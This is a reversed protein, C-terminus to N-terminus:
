NNEKCVSCHCIYKKIFVERLSEGMPMNKHDKYEIIYDNVATVVGAECYPIKERKSRNVAKFINNFSVGLAVRDKESSM